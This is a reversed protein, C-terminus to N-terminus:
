TEDQGGSEPEKKASGAKPLVKWNDDYGVSHLLRGNVEAGAKMEFMNYHVNGKVHARACLQVSQSGYVDGEVSGNISVYPVRVEGEVIGTESLCLYSTEDNPAMINGKITGDVHLGGEFNLSGTILTNSGIMTDIRKTRRKKHKFM